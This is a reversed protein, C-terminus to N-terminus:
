LKRLKKGKVLFDRLVQPDMLDERIATAYYITLELERLNSCLEIIQNWDVSSMLVNCRLHLKSLKTCCQLLPVIYASTVIHIGLEELHLLKSLDYNVLSHWNHLKLYRLNTMHKAIAEYIKASDAPRIYRPDPSISLDIINQGHQQ